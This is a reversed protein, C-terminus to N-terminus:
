YSYGRLEKYYKIFFKDPSPRVYAAATGLTDYYDATSILNKKWKDVCLNNKNTRLSNLKAEKESDVASITFDKNIM